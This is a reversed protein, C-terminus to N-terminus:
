LRPHKLIVSSHNPSHLGHSGSTPTPSFCITHLPVQAAQYAAQLSSKKSNWGRVSSSM